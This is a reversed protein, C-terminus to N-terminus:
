LGAIGLGKWNNIAKSTDLAQKSSLAGEVIAHLVVMSSDFATVDNLVGLYGRALITSVSGAWATAQALVGNAYLSVLNNTHDAVGILIIYSDITMVGTYIADASVGGGMVRFRISAAEPMSRLRVYHISHAYYTFIYKEGNLTDYTSKLKGVWIFTVDDSINISVYASAGYGTRGDLGMCVQEVGYDWIIATYTGSIVGDCAAGTAKDDIALGRGEDLNHQLVLNSAEEVGKYLLLLEAATLIATSFVRPGRTIRGTLYTTLDYGYVTDGDPVTLVTDCHDNTAEAVGNIYLRASITGEAATALTLSVQWETDAAWSVKTTSVTEDAGGDADKLIFDLAGTTSNLRAIVAGNNLNMLGMDAASASSFLEELKFTPLVVTLNDNISLAAPDTVTVREAGRMILGKTTTAKYAGGTLTLAHGGPVGSPWKTGVIEQADWLERFRMGSPLLLKDLVASM